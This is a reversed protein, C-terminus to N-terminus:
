STEGQPKEPQAKRTRPEGSPVDPKIKLSELFTADDRTEHWPKEPDDAKPLLLWRPAKGCLPCLKTAVRKFESPKWCERCIVALM